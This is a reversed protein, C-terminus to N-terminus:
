AAAGPGGGSPPPPGSGGESPPESGSGPPPPPPPAGGGKSDSDGGIRDSLQDKADSFTAGEEKRSMWGGVALVIAGVLAVFIGFELSSSIEGPRFIIRLVVMVFAAIGMGATLASAAVPLSVSKSTLKVVALGLGVVGAILIILNAIVGLFGEGDWAGISTSTSFKVDGFATEFDGGFSYWNLFLIGVLLIVAGVAAIIEGPKLKSKDM